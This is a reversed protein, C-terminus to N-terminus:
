NKNAKEYDAIAKTVQGDTKLNEWFAVNKREIVMKDDPGHLEKGLKVLSVNAGSVNQNKDFGGDKLYYINEITATNADIHTIKGFYVQGNNLFVAQYKDKNIQEQVYKNPEELTKLRKNLDDEKTAVDKKVTNLQSTQYVTAAALGIILLVLFSIFIWASSKSKGPKPTLVTPTNIPGMKSRSEVSM